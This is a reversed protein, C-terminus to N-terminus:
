RSYRRQSAKLYMESVSMLVLLFLRHLAADTNEPANQEGEREHRRSPRMRAFAFATTSPAPAGSTRSTWSAGTVGTFRLRSSERPQLISDLRILGQDRRELGLYGRRHALDGRQLACDARQLGLDRVQQALVVPRHYISVASDRTRAARRDDDSIRM